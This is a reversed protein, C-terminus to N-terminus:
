PRRSSRRLGVLLFTRHSVRKRRKRVRGIREFRVDVLLRHLNVVPLMVVRVDGIQVRRQVLMGFQLRLAGLIQQAADVGHRLVDAGCHAVVAAAMDVVGHEPLDHRRLRAALRAPRDGGRDVRREATEVLELLLQLLGTDAAEAAAPRPHDILTALEHDFAGRVLVARQHFPLLDDEADVHPFVRVVQLILVAPGIVDVGPPVNHVPRLDVIAEQSGVTRKRKRACRPTPMAKVGTKTERSAPTFNKRKLAPSAAMRIAIASASRYPADPPEIACWGARPRWIASRANTPPSPATTSYQAVTPRARTVIRGAITATATAPPKIAM